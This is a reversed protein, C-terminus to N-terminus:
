NGAANLRDRWAQLTPNGIFGPLAPWYVGTLSAPTLGNLGIGAMGPFNLQNSPNQPLPPPPPPPPPPFSTSPPHQTANASVIPALRPVPRSLIHEIGHPTAAIPSSNDTTQVSNTSDFLPSKSHQHHHKRNNTLAASNFTSEDNSSQSNAEEKGSNNTSSDFIANVATSTESVVDRRTASSNSPSIGQVSHFGQLGQHLHRLSHQLSQMQMAPYFTQLGVLGSSRHFSSHQSQSLLSGAMPSGLEPSSCYNTSNSSNSKQDSAIRSNKNKMNDGSENKELPSTPSTPSSSSCSSKPSHPYRERTQVTEDDASAPVSSVNMKNESSIFYYKADLSTNNNGKSNVKSQSQQQIITASTDSTPSISINLSSPLYNISHSQYNDSASPFLEKGDSSMNATIFVSSSMSKTTPTLVSSIFPHLLDLM